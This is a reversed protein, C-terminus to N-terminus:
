YNRMTMRQERTQDRGQDRAWRCIPSAVQSGEGGIQNITQAAMKQRWRSNRRAITGLNNIIEAKTMGIGADIFTLTNSVKDSIIKIVIEKRSKLVSPEILSRSRIKDLADNANSILEHISIEKSSYFINIILSMLQAMEIQIAFIEDEAMIAENMLEIKIKLEGYNWDMFCLSLTEEMKKNTVMMNCNKFWAVMKLKVYEDM